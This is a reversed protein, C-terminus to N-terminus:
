LFRPTLLFGHPQGHVTGSGVIQGWVNIDSVSNLVWGLGTPILTNLDRMGRGESWIFPRGSVTFPAPDSFLGQYFYVTDGSSGIVQGFCNIKLAASSVDPSLTGLDRTVGSQTWLVAHTPVGGSSDVASTSSWGVVQGLDNV